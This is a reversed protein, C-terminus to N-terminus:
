SHVGGPQFKGESLGDMFLALQPIELTPLPRRKRGQGSISRVFLLHDTGRKFYFDTVIEENAQGIRMEGRPNSRMIRHDVQVQDPGLKMSLPFPNTIVVRLQKAVAEIDIRKDIHIM